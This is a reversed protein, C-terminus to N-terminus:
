KKRGESVLNAVHNEFIACIDDKLEELAAEQVEKDLTALGIFLVKILEMVEAELVIM